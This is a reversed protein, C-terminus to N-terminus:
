TVSIATQMARIKKSHASRIKSTSPAVMPYDRPLNWKARYAAATLRHQARLHNKLSKFLLGDELCVIHDLRVSHDIPVPPPQRPHSLPRAQPQAIALAAHVASILAVLEGPSVANKALYAKVIEATSYIRREEMNFLGWPSLCDFTLGTEPHLLLLEHGRL